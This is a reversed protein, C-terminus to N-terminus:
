CDWTMCELKVQKGGYKQLLYYMLLVICSCSLEDQMLMCASLISAYSLENVLSGLNHLTFAEGLKEGMPVMRLIRSMESTSRRNPLSLMMSDLCLEKWCAKVHLISVRPNTSM